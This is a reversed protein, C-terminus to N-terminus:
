PRTGIELVLRIPILGIELGDSTLDFSVFTGVELLRVGPLLEVDVGFPGQVGLIAEVATELRWPFDALGDPGPAPPLRWALSATIEGTVNIPMSMPLSAWRLPETWQATGQVGASLVPILSPEPRVTVGAKFFPHVSVDPEPNAWVPLAHNTLAVGIGLGIGLGVAIALWRKLAKM